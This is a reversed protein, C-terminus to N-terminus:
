EGDIIAKIEPSVEPKLVEPKPKDFGQYDFLLSILRPFDDSLIRLYKSDGCVLSVRGIKERADELKYGLITDRVIDRTRYILPLPINENDDRLVALCFGIDNQYGEIAELLSDFNDHLARKGEGEMIEDLALLAGIKCPKGYAMGRLRLSLKYRLVADEVYTGVRDEKGLDGLMQQLTDCGKDFFRNGRKFERETKTNDTLEIVFDYDTTARPIGRFVEDMEEETVRIGMKMKALIASIKARIHLSDNYFEAAQGNNFVVDSLEIPDEDPRLAYTFHFLLCPLLFKEKIPSDGVVHGNKVTQVEAKYISTKGFREYEGEQEELERLIKITEEDVKTPNEIHINGLFGSFPAQIKTLLDIIKVYLDHKEIEEETEPEKEFRSVSTTGAREHAEESAIIERDLAGFHERFERDVRDHDLNDKEASM